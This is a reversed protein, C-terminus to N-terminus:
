FNQDDEDYCTQANESGCPEEEAALFALEVALVFSRRQPKNKTSENVQAKFTLM